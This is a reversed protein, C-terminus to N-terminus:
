RPSEKVLCINDLPSKPANSLDRLVHTYIMTTEIHKHGLLEQIERINVGDMLLHTAFSHRLTHVTAHKVIGAKKVANRMANQISKESLHHRRIKGSRPDVSHRPAAFVYQWGWEEAAHPYKRDLGDPLYVGGYGAEVDEEYIAKVEELHSCLKEKICEPLITSRDKAGKGSRVFILGSDFDIDKVRLRVLEMLRLGAGYLLQLALLNKGNLHKFLEQVEEVTLVVPLKPGRKARVTQGLDKLETGLVKRFFFLLANFAQNQTSSAVRQRIALHSLFDRVDSSELGRAQIDKRKVEVVYEHFRKVWDLYSRETGYSYHKIRIAERMGNLMEARNLHSKNGERRINSDLSSSKGELFHGLYLRLAEEAQRVQWESINKDRELRSLFRKIRLEQHLDGNSNSFALFKSAWHAYYPVNKEPVVKRSRLFDQFQPLTKTSM